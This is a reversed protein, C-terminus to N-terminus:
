EFTQKKGGKLVVESSFRITDSVASAVLSKWQQMDWVVEKGTFEVVSDNFTVTTAAKKIGGATYHFNLPAINIPITVGVYDPYIFTGSNTVVEVAAGGCASCFWLICAAAAIKSLIRKLM